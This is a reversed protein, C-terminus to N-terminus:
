TSSCSGVADLFHRGKVAPAGRAAHASLGVEVRVVADPVALRVQVVHLDRLCGAAGYVDDDSVVGGTSAM